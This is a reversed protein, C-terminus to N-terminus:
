GCVAASMAAKRGQDNNLRCPHDFNPRRRCDLVVWNIHCRDAATQWRDTKTTNFAVNATSGTPNYPDLMAEVLRKEALGARVIGAVIRECAEDALAKWM